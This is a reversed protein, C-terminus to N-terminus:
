HCSMIEKTLIVELRQDSMLEIAITMEPSPDLERIKEHLPERQEPDALVHEILSILERNCSRQETPVPTVVPQVQTDQAPRGAVLIILILLLVWTVCGGRM